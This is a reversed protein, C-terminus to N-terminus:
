RKANGAEVGPIAPWVPLPRFLGAREALGAALPGPRNRETGLLIQARYFLILGAPAGVDGLSRNIPAHRRYLGTLYASIRRCNPREVTNCSSIDNSSGVRREMRSTSRATNTTVIIRPMGAKQAIAFRQGRRFTSSSAIQRRPSHETATARVPMLPHPTGLRTPTPCVGRSILQINPSRRGAAPLEM